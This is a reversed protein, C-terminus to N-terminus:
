AARPSLLGQVRLAAEEKARAEVMLDYDDERVYGLFRDLDEGRVLDAHAGLRKDLAQSSLHFKPRRRLKKWLGLAEGLLEDWTMEGPLIDYHLNDVILPVGLERCLPLVEQPPWVHDDHELALYKLIEPERVLRRLTRERTAEFGEYRGGVHIVLVGDRAGLRDLLSVSYRLERLSAEAVDDNPSGPICYQGPHMSLRVGAKSAKEGLESLRKAFRNEWEFSLEPHSALPIFKQGVRFNLGHFENYDILRNLADMNRRCADVWRAENQASSLRITGNTTLGLSLNNCTYGVKIM